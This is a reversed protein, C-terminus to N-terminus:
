ARSDTVIGRRVLGRLHRLALLRPLGCLDLVSEVDTTGDLLSLLFGSVNDLPFSKLEEPALGAVLVSSPSGIESMCERELASRCDEELKKAEAHFPVMELLQTLLFLAQEHGGDAHLRRAEDITATGAPM